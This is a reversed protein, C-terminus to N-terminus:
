GRPAEPEFQAAMFEADVAKIAEVEWPTLSVRFLRSYSEIDPFTLYGPGMGTSQRARHLRAFMRWLYALDRPLEPENDGVVRGTQRRIAAVHDALTAGAM